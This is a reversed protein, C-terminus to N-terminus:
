SLGMRAAPSIIYFVAEVSNSATKQPYARKRYGINEKAHGCADADVAACYIMESRRGCAASSSTMAFIMKATKMQQAPCPFHAHFEPKILMM